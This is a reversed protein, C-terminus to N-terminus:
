TRPRKGEFQQLYNLLSGHTAMLNNVASTLSDMTADHAKTTEYTPKLWHQMVEFQQRLLKLLYQQEKDRAALYKGLAEETQSQQPAPAPVPAPAAAPVILPAKTAQALAQALNQSLPELLAALRTLTEPALTTHTHQPATPDRPETKQKAEWKALKYQQDIGKALLEKIADLGNAFAQLQAVAQGLKDSTDIGQLRQRGAFSRKIEQWREAEAGKLTGCLERFKLLNAEAGSTLTQAENEYHTRILGELEAENMIPLVKEAIKNMNRYSGQLKFAPETRYADEMAASKIYALNVQLIVDRVRFLKQLVATFEALEEAGYNGELELGDRSGSRAAQALTLVDKTSRAALKNLVPNSTLANEIYSLEFSEANDGIIDGLNYTDARNALMDPIRFKAGSETYPNGAMVVAVKRGRFDYTRTRGKYVGEIKRQADCLSIFKQLFEPNCHQIDDVYIMVNDGMEFSLSLKHLEERAAAHPAAAPDLSTVEHGLAPGNIKMFILGLRNAIYEMLTTKGYGPPSILLLMGMRDTRTGAGAAGIQKALNDGILPLYVKDLLQNRVFSTLVKPKFEDLRMTRASEELLRKKQATYHEFRPVLERDYTALRTRFSYFDLQYRGQDLVAHSGKFGELLRACTLSGVRTAAWSDTLYLVAAEDEFQADIKTEHERYARVWERTLQFARAPERELERLAAQLREQFGRHAIQSAFGRYLESAEVAIAFGDGQQLQNFLAAAADDVLEPAFLATAAVFARLQEAIEAVHRASASASPYFEFLTALGACTARWHLRLPEPCFRHWYLAALARARSPWALLGLGRRLELLNALLLAADGDHVGKTYGEAYRPGAFLRVREPLEEASACLLQHPDGQDLTQLLRWALFEARYVTATESVLEQDWVARTELFAPDAVPEFFDTGALHYCQQGDRVVMTLALAQTNVSFAHNGFRILNTGGDFLEQRDKLQRVTEERITKLRAQLDDAKVTDELAVLQDILNRLKEVMLDGAFYGNIEAVQDFKAARNRIGALIREAASFLAAAKKNRAEVLALRKAEFANYIEERKEVLQNIFEDFESFRGELEEVQVTLKTLYSECKDPSDCVDLYNTVSQALLKLQANFEAVGESRALELVRNKLAAKLRNLEAFIASVADIIRTTQTADDIKLNSVIEILLELERSSGDLEQELARAAAVTRVEALQQELRLQRSQYPALAEDRLLFAVCASSLQEAHERIQTELADIRASDAYRRERCSIAEGRLSRLKTLSAVFEDVQRLPTRAIQKFLAAAAAAVREIEERTTKKIRSVKDFEDIASRAAAAIAGLAAHLDATAEERLWFYSDVIDTCKRAIDVYLNAYSDEKRVLTLVEGCEAMARVIDKNGIRAIPSNHQQGLDFGERTYPTQWIQVSHHKGPQEEARFYILTGDAFFSYGNCVIPSEVKQQILNYSLLVYVGSERNYFIYLFDEGNPSTLRKEFALGAVQAEFLKLMGTQLYYGRPFILGHGDPLFVCSEGIPDVRLAEQLKENYVFYRYKKEQYPLIKLLIVHGVAAYYIESDDLTQDPHDVPEAYIGSGSTTNDEVKITLDGGITEVFVRDEISVHPHAGMRFWDRRVRSWEFDHQPPVKFEHDSRSDLYTLGSDGILWKFTKFDTVARGIQFQMFLHPGIIAFKIFSTNKYYKYLNKFDKEFEPDQILSLDRAQFQGDAYAYVAFVDELQLDTRLGLHVNYGFLFCDGIAYMDQPICNNATLVRQTGTLRTEIAGFTQKRVLNLGDLRSQLENAQAQLRGRIVEYTGSELRVQTGEAAGEPAPNQDSM